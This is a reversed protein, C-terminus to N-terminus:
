RYSASSNRVRANRYGLAGLLMEVLMTKSKNKPGIVIEVIANERMTQRLPMEFYPVVGYRTSRFNITKLAGDLLMNPEEPRTMMSPSYTIRWEREERFAPNKFSLALDRLQSVCRSGRTSLTDHPSTNPSLHYDFIQAIERKLADDDYQIELLGVTNGDFMSMHPIQLKADFAKPNFGIAFGDGDRAYARWQSLVDGDRSFSGVYLDRMRDSMTHDFQGTIENLFEM